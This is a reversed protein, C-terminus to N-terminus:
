HQHHLCDPHDTDGGTREYNTIYDLLKKTKDANQKDGLGEFLGIAKEYWCKADDMEGLFHACIGLQHCTKAQVSVNVLKEGATLAREYWPKAAAYDKALQAVMGLQHCTLMIGGDLGALESVGLSQEFWSKAGSLDGTEQCVLGLNHLSM